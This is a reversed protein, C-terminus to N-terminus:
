LLSVGMAIISYHPDGYLGYRCINENLGNRQEYILFIGIIGIKEIAVMTAGGNWTYPPIYVINIGTKNWGAIYRNNM